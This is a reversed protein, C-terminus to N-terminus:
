NWGKTRLDEQFQYFIRPDVDVTPVEPYTYQHIEYQDEIQPQTECTENNCNCFRACSQQSGMEKFIRKRYNM